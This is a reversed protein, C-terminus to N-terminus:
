FLLGSVAEWMEAVWFFCYDWITERPVFPALSTVLPAAFTILPSQTSPDRYQSVLSQVTADDPQWDIQVHEPLVRDLTPAPLNLPISITRNAMDEMIGLTASPQVMASPIFLLPTLFFGIRDGVLIIVGLPWGLSALLYIRIRKREDARGVTYLVFFIFLDLLQSASPPSVEILINSMIAAIGWIAAGSYVKRCMQRGMLFSFVRFRLFPTILLLLILEVCRERQYRSSLAVPRRCIVAILLGIALVSGLFLDILDASSRFQLPYTNFM